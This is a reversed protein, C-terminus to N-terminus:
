KIGLNDIKYGFKRLGNHLQDKFGNETYHLVFPDSQGTVYAIEVTLNLAEFIAHPVKSIKSVLNQAYAKNEISIDAVTKPIEPQEKCAWKIAQVLGKTLKTSPHTAYAVANKVRSEMNSNSIEIKDKEPIDLDKLCAFVAVVVCSEQQQKNEEKNEIYSLPASKTSPLPASKSVEPTSFLPKDSKPDLTTKLVRTRGDFSEVWIYGLSKLKSIGEQIKRERENFFNCLYENSAFCGNAGDLSNLEALLCKEFYNIRNDVWVNRPIFIGKFNRSLKQQQTKNDSNNDQTGEYSSTM